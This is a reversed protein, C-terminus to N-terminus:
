FGLDKIAAVFQVLLGTVLLFGGLFRSRSKPTSYKKIKGLFVVNEVVFSPIVMWLLFGGGIGATISTSPFGGVFQLVLSCILIGMPMGMHAWMFLGSFINSVFKQFKENSILVESLIIIGLIDYFLGIVNLVKITELDELKSLYYGFFAGVLIFTLFVVSFLKNSM